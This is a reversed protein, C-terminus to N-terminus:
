QQGAPVDMEQYVSTVILGVGQAWALDLFYGFGCLFWILIQYRGMGMVDFESRTLVKASDSRSCLPDVCQNILAAKREFVTMPMKATGSLIAAISMDTSAVSEDDNYVHNRTGSPKEDEM